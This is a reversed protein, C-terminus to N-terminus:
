DLEFGMGGRSRTITGDEGGEGTWGILDDREKEFGSGREDGILDLRGKPGVELAPDIPLSKVRDLITQDVGHHFRRFTPGIALGTQRMRHSASEKVGDM